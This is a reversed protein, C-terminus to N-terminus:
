TSKSRLEPEGVAWCSSSSCRMGRFCHSPSKTGRSCIVIIQVILATKGCGKWYSRLYPNPACIYVIEERRQGTPLLGSVQILIEIGMHMPAHTCTSVKEAPSLTCHFENELSYSIPAMKEPQPIQQSINTKLELSDASMVGRQKQLKWLM